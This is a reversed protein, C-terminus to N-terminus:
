SGNTNQKRAIRIRQGNKRDPQQDKVCRKAKADRQSIETNPMAWEQPNISVLCEFSAKSLSISSSTPGGEQIYGNRGRLCSSDRCRTTEPRLGARKWLQSRDSEPLCGTGIPTNFKHPHTPKPSPWSHFQPLRHQSRSGPYWASAHRLNVPFSFPLWVLLQWIRPTQSTLFFLICKNILLIDTKNETSHEM